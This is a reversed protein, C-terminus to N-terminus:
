VAIQIFIVVCRMQEHIVLWQYYLRFIEQLNQLFKSDRFHRRPVVHMAIATAPICILYVVVYCWTHITFEIFKKMSCM